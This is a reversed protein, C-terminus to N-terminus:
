KKRSFSPASTRKHHTVSIMRQVKALVDPDVESTDGRDIAQLTADLVEYTLGIENEDTQGEWLGASPPRSIVSEPVGIEKAVARVEYKYLDTLPFLDVGGDGHKTFYGIMLESRNGTGVVVGGALNALYYLSIMRLRPRVNARALGLRNTIDPAENEGLVESYLTEADPMAEFVTEAVDTLDLTTVNIGFADAVSQAAVVDDPNSASPMMVGLVKEPGVARACLGAVVASDIGGSLGLIFREAGTIEFQERLWGSIQDALSTADASSITTTPMTM